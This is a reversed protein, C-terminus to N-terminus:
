ASNVLDASQRNHRRVPLLIEFSTGKGSSRCTILGQANIVLNHVISLGVGQHGEGKTSQIPSFLQALLEPSIGPGNDRVCLEGYLQGDRSVHGSNVIQIEGGAPMAEIANKILNLLIQKLADVRCEVESALDQTQVVIKVSSPIFDTDRFLRVVDRMVGNIEATGEPVTPKQDTLGKIIRGVRDIEDNLISLEGAVPQHRELKSDLVSLYNKIIALPNNVEHVVKRSVSKYDEAVAAARQSAQDEGRLVAGLASAAQNGFWRLLSERQQLGPLQWSAVGGIMVGLCRPGSILPVCVLSTSGLVRLL